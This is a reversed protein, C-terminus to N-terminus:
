DGIYLYPRGTFTVTFENSRFAIGHEESMMKLNSHLKQLLVRQMSDMLGLKPYLRYWKWIGDQEPM